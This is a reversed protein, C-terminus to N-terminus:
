PIPSDNHDYYFCDHILQATKKGIGEVNRLQEPAAEAVNYLTGFHKLLRESKILSLGPITALALLATREPDLPDKRQGRARPRDPKNEQKVFIQLWDASENEDKVRLVAIGHRLLSALAGNVSKEPLRPRGELILVASTFERKLREAQEFLRGDKISATFDAASKREVALRDSVIYDGIPLSASEVEVGALALLGPVGSAEERHDYLILV